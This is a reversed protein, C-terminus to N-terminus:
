QLQTNDAVQRSYIAELVLEAARKPSEASQLLRLLNAEQEKREAGEPNSLLWAMANEPKWALLQGVQEEVAPRNEVRANGEELGWHALSLLHLSYPAVDAKAERLLQLAERNLPTNNLPVAM